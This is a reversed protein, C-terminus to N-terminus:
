FCKILKKYEYYGMNFIITLVGEIIIKMKNVILGKFEISIVNDISVPM